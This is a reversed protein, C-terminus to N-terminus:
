KFKSHTHSLASRITEALKVSSGTAFTHLHSIAPEVFLEHNHLATVFFGGSRLSRAVSGAEQALVIIDGSVAAHSYGISQFNLVSEVQMATQLEVGLERIKEVRELSVSLVGNRSLGTGGVIREIQELHLGPHQRQALDHALSMGTRALVKHLATAIHLPDGISTGHLYHVHPTVELFHNHLSNLTSTAPCLDQAFLTDLVANVESDRLVLRYKVIADDGQRQFTIVTDLALHSTVEIGFITGQLDARPLEILLINGSKIIGAVRFIAAVKSWVSDTITSQLPPFVTFPIPPFTERNLAAMSTLGIGGGAILIERRTMLGDREDM